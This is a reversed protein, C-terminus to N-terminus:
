VVNELWRVDKKPMEEAILEYRGGYLDILSYRGKCVQWLSEHISGTVLVRAGRDTEVNWRVGRQLDKVSVIKTIRPVYYRQSLLDRIHYQTYPDFYGLDWIMGIEMKGNYLSIFQEPLWTPHTLLATVNLHTCEGTLTLRYVGDTEFIMFEGPNLYRTPAARISLTDCQTLAEYEPVDANVERMM